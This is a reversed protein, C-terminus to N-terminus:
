SMEPHRRGARARRAHDHLERAVGPNRELWRDVIAQVQQPSEAHAHSLGNLASRQCPPSPLALTEELVELVTDDGLNLAAIDFFMFCTHELKPRRRPDEVRIRRAFVEDFLTVISRLGATRLATPLQGTTFVYLEGGDVVELLGGAVQDDSYPALIEGANGFLRTIREAMAHPHDHHAYCQLWEAPPNGDRDEPRDFLYSVWADFGEM